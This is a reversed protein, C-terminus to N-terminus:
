GYKLILFEKEDATIITSRNIMNIISESTLLEHNSEHKNALSFDLLEYALYEPQIDRILDVDAKLAHLCFDFKQNKIKVISYPDLFLALECLEDTQNIVAIAGPNAEIARKCLKVGPHKIYQIAFPDCKIALYKLGYSQENVPIHRIASPTKRIANECIKLTKNKVYRLLDGDSQVAINCLNDDAIDCIYKLAQPNRQIIYELLSYEKDVKDMQLLVQPNRIIHDQNFGYKLSIKKFMDYEDQNFECKINFM